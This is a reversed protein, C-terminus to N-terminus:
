AVPEGTGNSCLAGAEPLDPNLLYKRVFTELRPDAADELPLQYGWATAVVPSGLGEYPTLLMYSEGAALETLIELQDAPLAPDYTIWVAGHELAHVANEDPVVTDYVGCNLWVANHPGGVPPTQEYDVVGEVHDFSLDTYEQVGEIPAEAEAEAAATQRAQGVIVVGAWGLLGVVLAGVVSVAVITRRREARKQQERLAAVQAAREERSKRSGTGAM